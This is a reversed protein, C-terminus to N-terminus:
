KKYKKEVEDIVNQLEIYYSLDRQNFGDVINQFKEMNEFHQQCKMLETTLSINYLTPNNKLEAIENLYQIANEVNRKVANMVENKFDVFDSNQPFHKIYIHWKREWLYKDDSELDFKMSMQVAADKSILFDNNSRAEIDEIMQYLWILSIKDFTNEESINYKQAEEVSNKNIREIMRLLTWPEYKGLANFVKSKLESIRCKSDSATIQLDFVRENIDNASLNNFDLGLLEIERAVEHNSEKFSQWDSVNRDKNTKTNIPVWKEEVYITM